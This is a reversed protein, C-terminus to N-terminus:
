LREKMTDRNDLTHRGMSIHYTAFQGIAWFRGHKLRMNSCYFVCANARRNGCLLGRFMIARWYLVPLRCRVGHRRITVGSDFPRPSVNPHCAFLATFHGPWFSSRASFTLSLFGSLRAVAMIVRFLASM